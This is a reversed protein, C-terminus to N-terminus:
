TYSLMGLRKENEKDTVKMKINITCINKPSQTVCVNDRKDESMVDEKKKKDETMQSRDESM